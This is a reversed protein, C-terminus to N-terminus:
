GGIQQMCRRTPLHMQALEHSEPKSDIAQSLHAQISLGSRLDDLLPIEIDNLLCPRLNGDATLRLRNCDGCFHDGLPSIVGVKGPAGPIQYSRAPGSGASREVPELQLPALIEMIEQVSMFAEEFPPFHDGWTEQNNVPMLEIFRMHWPHNESLRAMDLLEDDNVGRMAVANFKIPALGAAEAAQIGRWVDDIDGRRTIRRFKDPDLTDLSINIRHLGAEALPAAYKALLIANTTLSIDEIGPVAAIMRILDPLEARVLPEGGTIRVEHVGQKATEEVVRVIEEFRLIADHPQLPIGKEPMCYVCRLNCRDTVSIRLYTIHRGYRDILM